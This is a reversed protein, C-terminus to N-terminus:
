EPVAQLPLLDGAQVWSRKGESVRLWAEKMKPVIDEPEGAPFEHGYFRKVPMLETLRGIAGWHDLHWHTTIYHDIQRLGAAEAARRIRQADREEPWGADVLISEGRPTVILTAAGGEVDIWTIELGKSAQPSAATLLLLGLLSLGRRM